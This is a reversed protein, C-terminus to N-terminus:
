SRFPGAFSGHPLRDVLSVTPVFHGNIFVLRAASSFTPQVEPVEGGRVESPPRGLTLFTELLADMAAPAWGEADGAPYGVDLFAELGQFRLDNVWLPEQSGRFRRLREFETKNHRVAPIDEPTM